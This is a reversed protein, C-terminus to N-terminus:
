VSCLLQINGVTHRITSDFCDISFQKSDQYAYENAKMECSCKNCCENQKEFLKMIFNPEVDTHYGKSEDYKKHGENKKLINKKFTQNVEPKIRTGFSVQSCCKASSLVTYLLKTDMAEWDYITFNETITSGQSKHMSTCYNMVFDQGFENIPETLKYIVPKGEKNSRKNKINKIYINKNDYGDVVFSESNAYLIEGGERKTKIAIIPLDYYIYM